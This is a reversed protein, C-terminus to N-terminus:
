LPRTPIGEWTRPALNQDRQRTRGRDQDQELDFSSCVDRLIMQIASVLINLLISEWSATISYWFAPARWSKQIQLLRHVSDGTSFGPRLCHLRGAQCVLPCNREIESHRAYRHSHAIIIRNAMAQSPNRFWVLQYVSGSYEHNFIERTCQPICVPRM